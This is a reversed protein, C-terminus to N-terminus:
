VAMNATLHNYDKVLTELFVLENMGAPISIGLIEKSKTAMSYVIASNGTQYYTKLVDHIIEIDRDNLHLVDTFIPEYEEPLDTAFAVHEHQVRPSTKILTTKAIVDGVRQHKHTVAVMVLAIPGWGFYFGFDILRFIWRLLYQGFTPQNGDLSIVKIKLVKKGISQGNMLLESVLDYLLFILLGIIGLTLSVTANNLTSTATLMIFFVFGFGFLIALDLLRALIREGLGAIEYDIDINQSTNIQITEM